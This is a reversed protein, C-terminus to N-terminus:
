RGGAPPPLEALQRQLSALESEWLDIAEVAGRVDPPLPTGDRRSAELSLRGVRALSWAIAQQQIGIQDYLARRQQGRRYNDASTRAIDSAANIARDFLSM